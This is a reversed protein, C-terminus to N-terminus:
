CGVCVTPTPTPDKLVLPLYNPYSRFKIADAAISLTATIEQTDIFLYVWATAPSIQYTGLLVWEDNYIQQNITKSQWTNSVNYIYYTAQRTTANQEPVFAYVKNIGPVANTVHWSAWINRNGSIVGRYYAHWGNGVTSENWTGVIGFGRGADEIITDFCSIPDSDLSRWLCPATHGQGQAPYNILPDPQQGRWGFPDTVNTEYIDGDNNVCPGRYVGLHLHPGTSRGTSGALGVMEGNAVTQDVAVNIASLHGYLTRYGSSHLIVVKSGYGDATDGIREVVGGAAALVQTGTVMSWDNGSHGHYCHPSCDATQEGTYITVENDEGYDPYHHDFFTTVRYTGNYPPRLVIGGAIVSSTRYLAIVVVLLLMSLMVSILIRWRISRQTM